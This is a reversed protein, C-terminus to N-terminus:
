GLGTLFHVLSRAIPDPASWILEQSVTEVALAGMAMPLRRTRDPLHSFCGAWGGDVEVHGSAQEGGM